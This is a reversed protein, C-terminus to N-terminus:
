AAAAFTQAMHHSSPPRGTFLEFAKVAQFIAMGAGPLTLCGKAAAASLLATQRPFYIIDAVWHREHLLTPDLPLGPYKDMGVPTTNVIGHASELAGEIEEVVHVKRGTGSLQNCLERAKNPVTDYIALDTAGLDILAQAVAAGAGGAGLQVIRKTEAGPLGSRFSEAFGWCDTNAGSRGGKSFLVTNVAGIAAAESSLEPLLKIVSQKFPHTINLGRFGVTQLLDLVDELDENGLGLADFDVLHYHYDLGLREGERRHMIPSLSASIGRGLLGIHIAGRAGLNVLEALGASLKDM